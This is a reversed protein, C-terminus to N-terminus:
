WWIDQFINIHKVESVDKCRVTCIQAGLLCLWRWSRHSVGGLALAPTVGVLLLRDFMQGLYAM